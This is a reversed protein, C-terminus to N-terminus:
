KDKTLFTGLYTFTHVNEFTYPEIELVPIDLFRRMKMAMYKTKNQSIKLGLRVAASELSHFEEVLDRRTGAILVLDDAYSIIQVSKAFSHGSTQV